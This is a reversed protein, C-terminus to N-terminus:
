TASEVVDWVSLDVTSGLGSVVSTPRVWAVTGLEKRRGFSVQSLMLLLDTWPVDRRRIFHPSRGVDIKDREIASIFSASSPDTWGSGKSCSSYVPHGM